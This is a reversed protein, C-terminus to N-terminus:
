VCGSPNAPARRAIQLFILERSSSRCDSAAPLNARGRRGTSIKQLPAALLHAPASSMHESSESAPNGASNRRRAVRSSASIALRRPSPSLAAAVMQPVFQRAIWRSPRSAQSCVPWESRVCFWLYRAQPGQRRAVRGRALSWRWRVGERSGRHAPGCGGAQPYTSTGPPAAQPMAYVPLLAVAWAGAVPWFRRRRLPYRAITRKVSKM